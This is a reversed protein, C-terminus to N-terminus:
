HDGDADTVTSLWTEAMLKHGAETPHVGDGLWYEPPSTRTAEDFAQQFRVLRGDFDRALDAVIQQRQRIEPLWQETVAGTMLVFPECLILRVEPLAERTVELLARYVQEYKEVSVPQGGDFRRWTDNVGILVSLVNPSLNICDVDWRAALDIVRNGSIGRNYIVLNDNPREAMLKLAAMRAYGSGLGHPSNPHPDERSRGADTISDGQFLLVDNPRIM